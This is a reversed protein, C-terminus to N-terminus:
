ESNMLSDIKYVVGRKYTYYCGSSKEYLRDGDKLTRIIDQNIDKVVIVPKSNLGIKQKTYFWIQKRLKYLVALIILNVISVVIFIKVM